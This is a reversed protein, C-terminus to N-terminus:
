LYVYMTLLCVSHIDIIAVKFSCSFSLIKHSYVYDDNGLENSDRITPFLSLLILCFFQKLKKYIIICFFVYIKFMKIKNHTATRLFVDM